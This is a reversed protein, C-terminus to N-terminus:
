APEILPPAGFGGTQSHRMLAPAAQRADLAILTRAVAQRVVPHADPAEVEAILRPIADGLGPMGLRHARAIADAAQRKLDAEPRALAELWLAKLRPHFRLVTKPEDSGIRPDHDRALDLEIAASLGAFFGLLCSSLCVLLCLVATRAKRTCTFLESRTTM